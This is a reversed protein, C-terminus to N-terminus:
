RIFTSSILLKVFSLHTTVRLRLSKMGSYILSPVSRLLPFLRWSHGKFHIIRVTVLASLGLRFALVSARHMGDRILPQSGFLTIFDNALPYGYEQISEEIHSLRQKNTINPLGDQQYREIDRFNGSLHRFFPSHRLQTSRNFRGIRPLSHSVIVRLTSLRKQEHTIHTIDVLSRSMRFQFFPDLYGIDINKYNWYQEEAATIDSAFELFDSISIDLRINNLHIHVSEGINDEISLRQLNRSVNSISALTIVAPNSM